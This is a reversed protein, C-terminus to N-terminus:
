ATPKLGSPVVAQTTSVLTLLTTGTVTAVPVGPVATSTPFTGSPTVTVPQRLARREKALHPQAVDVADAVERRQFVRIHQRLLDARRGRPCRILRSGHGTGGRASHTRQAEGQPNSGLKIVYAM